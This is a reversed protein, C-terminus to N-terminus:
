RATRKLLAYPGQGLSDLVGAPRQKLHRDFFGRVLANILRHGERSDIPGALGLPQALAPSWLPSDSFNMHTAGALHVGFGGGRTLTTTRVGWSDMLAQLKARSSGAAELQAEPIAGPDIADGRLELFPRSLGAEWATGFPYGDMNLGAQVRPDLSMIQAATAGGFSHGFYGIRTTDIRGTFLRRPDDRVLASMRDILFRGDAAWLNVFRIAASDQQILTTSLSDPWVIEDGPFVTGTSHFTHDTAVIVYGHSALEAMQFGNQFRTGGFGHSFVLLPFTRAAGSMPADAHAWTLGTGAMGMLATQVAARGAIGAALLDPRPHARVRPNEPEPDAPYWVQVMLRRHDAPDATFTEARSSDVWYEARTGVQYPGTPPEYTPIPLIWTPTLVALAAAALMLTRALVRRWRPRVEPMHGLRLASVFAAGLDFLYLPLLVWRPAGVAVHVAGALAVAAITGVLWREERHWGLFVGVVWLPPIALLLLDPWPPLTM